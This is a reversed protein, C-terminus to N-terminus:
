PVLEAFNMTFPRAPFRDAAAPAALYRGLAIAGTVILAIALGVLFATLFANRRSRLHLPANDRLSNM